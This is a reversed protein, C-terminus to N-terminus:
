LLTNIKIIFVDSKGEVNPKQFRSEHFKANSLIVRSKHQNKFFRFISQVDHLHAFFRFTPSILSEILMLADNKPCFNQLRM